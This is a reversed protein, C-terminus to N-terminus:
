STGEKRQLSYCKEIYAKLVPQVRSAHGRLRGSIQNTQEEALLHDYVIDETVDTTKADIVYFTRIFQLTIIPPDPDRRQTYSIREEPVAFHDSIWSNNDM